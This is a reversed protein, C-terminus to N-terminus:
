ARVVQMQNAGAGAATLKAWARSIDVSLARSSAGDQYEVELADVRERKIGPEIPALPDRGQDIAVATILQANKLAAPIMNDPVAYSDLRVNKRPWQLPQTESAKQGPFSLTEAYDMAKILLTAPDGQLTVGRAGAYSTLEAETVYSNAAPNDGTGTEITITM